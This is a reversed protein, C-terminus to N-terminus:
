QLLAALWVLSAPSHEECRLTVNRGHPPWCAPKIAATCLLPQRRM